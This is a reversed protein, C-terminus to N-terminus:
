QETHSRLKMYSDFEELIKDENGSNYIVVNKLLVFSDLDMGSFEVAIDGDQHRVVSGTLRISVDATSGTLQIRIGLSAGIPFPEPGKVLMGRLSLNDVECNVTGGEHQIEARCQFLIRTFNRREGMHDSEQHSLGKQPLGAARCVGNM